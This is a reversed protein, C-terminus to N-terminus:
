ENFIDGKRDNQRHMTYRKVIMKVVFIYNRGDACNRIM